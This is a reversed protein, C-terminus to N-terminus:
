IVQIGVVCTDDETNSESHELLGDLREDLSSATFGSSITLLWETCEDLDQDRREICPCPSPRGRVYSSPCQIDPERGGCSGRRRPTCAASRPPSSTTPSTTPSSTSGPSWSPPPCAPPPWAVCRTASCWWGRRVRSATVPSTGVPVLVQRSPLVVVDYWDGGVLHELEAPRYRVAIRLGSLEVTSALGGTTTRSVDVTTDSM